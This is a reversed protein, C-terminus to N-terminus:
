VGFYFLKVFQSTFGDWPDPVRRIYEDTTESELGEFNKGNYDTTVNSRDSLYVTTGAPNDPTDERETLTHTTSEGSSQSFDIGDAAIKTQYAEWAKIKVDWTDEILTYRDKMCQVWYDRDCSGIGRYRYRAWLEDRKKQYDYATNPIIKEFVDIGHDDLVSQPTEIYVTM